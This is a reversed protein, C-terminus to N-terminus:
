EQLKGIERIVAAAGPGAIMVFCGALILLGGLWERPTPITGLVVLAIVSVYIPQSQNILATKSVGIRKVAHLYFLRALIPGGLAVAIIGWWYKGLAFLPENQFSALVLYFLAVVVNRVFNLPVPSIYRLAMAAMSETTGWLVGSCVMVWFWRDLEMELTARIIVIGVLVLAGGLIEVARLREKLLLVGLFVAVVTQLRGIFSAVTPDLHKIGTWMAMLAAISGITFFSAWLWGKTPCQSLERWQRSPIMLLGMALTAISFSLAINTVPSVGGTVWKGIGYVSASCIASIFTFTYGKRQGSM